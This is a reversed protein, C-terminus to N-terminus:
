QVTYQLNFTKVTHMPRIKCTVTVRHITQTAQKRLSPLCSFVLPLFSPLLPLNRTFGRLEPTLSQAQAQPRIRLCPASARVVGHMTRMCADHMTPASNASASPYTNLQAVCCLKTRGGSIWVDRWEYVHMMCAHRKASIPMYSCHFPTM